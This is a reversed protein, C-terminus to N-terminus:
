KKPLSLLLEPLAECFLLRSVGPTSPDHPTRWSPPFLIHLPMSFLFSDCEHFPLTNLIFTHLAETSYRTQSVIARIRM